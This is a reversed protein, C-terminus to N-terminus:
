LREWLDKDGNAVILGTGELTQRREEATDLEGPAEVLEGTHVDFRIRPLQASFPVLAQCAAKVASLMNAAADPDQVGMLNAERGHGLVQAAGIQAVAASPISANTGSLGMWAVYRAAWQDVSLGM